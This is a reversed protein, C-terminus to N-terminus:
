NGVKNKPWPDPKVDMRQYYYAGGAVHGATQVLIKARESVMEFSYM